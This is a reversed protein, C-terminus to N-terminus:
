VESPPILIRRGMGAVIDSPWMALNADCIRWFREPDKYYQFAILDLRDGQCVVHSMKSETKEIFRTKKYRVERGKFDRIVHDDVNEYRSAKFFM